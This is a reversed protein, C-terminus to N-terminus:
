FRSVCFFAYATLVTFVQHTERTYHPTSPTLGLADHMSPFNEVASNM